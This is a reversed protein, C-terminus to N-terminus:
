ELKEIKKRLLLDTEKISKNIRDSIFKLDEFEIKYEHKGKFSLKKYHVQFKAGEIDVHVSHTTRPVIVRNSDRIRIGLTGTELIITDIIKDVNQTECIVSLLNTPRNKKTIGSFISVDKANKKMIKEILNGLIEGSVDDINTELIKVSDVNLHNNQKGLIIKIVNSFNEFNKQGGGYGISDVQIPPYFEASSTCLNVLVSAGTPTTLEENTSKGQIILDSNRFIELIAGLLIQCKVM